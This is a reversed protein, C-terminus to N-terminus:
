FFHFVKYLFRNNLRFFDDDFIGAVLGEDLFIGWFYYKCICTKPNIIM